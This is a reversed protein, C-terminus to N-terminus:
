TCSLDDAKRRMSSSLTELFLLDHRYICNFSISFKPLFLNYSKFEGEFPERLVDSFTALTATSSSTM